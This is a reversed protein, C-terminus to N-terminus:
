SCCDHDMNRCSGLRTCLIHPFRCGSTYIFITTVLDSLDSLLTKMLDEEEEREFRAVTLLDRTSTTYDKFVVSRTHDKVMKTVLTHGTTSDYEEFKRIVTATLEKHDIQSPDTMPRVIDEITSTVKKYVLGDQTQFYFMQLAVFIEDINFWVVDLEQKM